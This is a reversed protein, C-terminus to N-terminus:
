ADDPELPRTIRYGEGLWKGLDVLRCRASCFPATGPDAVARGCVPCPAGAKMPLRSALTATTTISVRRTTEDVHDIAVTVREDPLAAGFREAWEVAIVADGADLMEEWGITELEEPGTLRYGDLHALPVRDGGQGAAPEYEQCIVFTPSSVDHPDLGLGAALGRVFCTKGAGLPGELAVVDGPRLREALRRALAETEAASKTTAEIRPAATVVRAGM